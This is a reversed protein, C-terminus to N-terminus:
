AITSEQPTLQTLTDVTRTRAHEGTAALEKRTREVFAAAQMALAVRLQDRAERRRKRAPAV